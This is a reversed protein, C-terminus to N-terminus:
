GRAHSGGAAHKLEEDTCAQLQAMIFDWIQESTQLNLVKAIRAIEIQVIERQSGPLAFKLWTKKEYKEAKKTKQHESLVVTQGMQSIESETYGLEQMHQIAFIKRKLSDQSSKGAMALAHSIQDISERDKSIKVAIAVLREWDARLATAADKLLANLPNVAESV